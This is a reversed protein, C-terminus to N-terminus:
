RKRWPTELRHRPPTLDATVVSVPVHGLSDVTSRDGFPDHSYDRLAAADGLDGEIRRAWPDLLLKHPNFRLGERPSWPGDARVGYRQGAGVGSLVGHWIGYTHQRLDM